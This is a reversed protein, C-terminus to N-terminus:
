ELIVFSFIAFSEKGARRANVNTQLADVMCVVISTVSPLPAITAVLNLMATVSKLILTSNEMIRATQYVPFQLKIKM